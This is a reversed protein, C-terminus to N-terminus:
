GSGTPPRKFAPMVQASFRELQELIVAQPTGV